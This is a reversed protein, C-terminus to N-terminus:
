KFGHRQFLELVDDTLFGKGSAQQPLDFGGGTNIEILVPGDQTIAIDMSQYKIPHFMPSCNNVLDIVKDWMPITRGIMDCGTEPNIDHDDTDFQNKTRINLIQGSNTDLNSVINGPRWFSDALQGAAPLKLVAFPIKIDSQSILICVRITALNGTMDAFFSHNKQLNQILYPTDGIYDNLFTDYDMWGINTLHLQNKEAKDVLFAGFSCIGRMEKGFCPLVGESTMFHSLQEATEIKITNPYLRDTKDIVALTYPINIDTEKLFNSCLWKDETLAQWTMDCCARTIPWHLGNSIFREQEEHSLKDKEYVRYQIYEPLPLRGISKNLKRFEMALDIFGRGSKDVAHILYDITSHKKKVWATQDVTVAHQANM